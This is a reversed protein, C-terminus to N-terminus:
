HHHKTTKNLTVLLFPKNRPKVTLLAPPPGAPPIAYEMQGQFAELDGM